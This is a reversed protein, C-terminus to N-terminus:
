SVFVTVIEGDHEVLSVYRTTGDPCVVNEGDRPVFQCYVVTPQFADDCGDDSRLIYSPKM